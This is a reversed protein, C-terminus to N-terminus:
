SDVQHGLLSRLRMMGLRIRTKVTGLPQALREAIEGHSMGSFYALEIVERQEPTLAELAHRIRRRRESLVASEEPDPGPANAEDVSELPEIREREVKRSRLRDIARTRAIVMIWALPAGRAPDFASAQKWIQMYVDLLTEEASPRDRLMRVLLGFIVRSTADYIEALAAQEGSATRALMEQLASEEARIGIAPVPPGGADRKDAM